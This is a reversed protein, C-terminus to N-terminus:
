AAKGRRVLEGAHTVHNQTLNMALCMGREACWDYGTDDGPLRVWHNNRLLWESPEEGGCWPCVVGSM